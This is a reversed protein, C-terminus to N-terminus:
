DDEGRVGPAGRAMMPHLVQGPPLHLRQTWRCCLDEIRKVPIGSSIVKRLQKYCGQILPARPCLWTKESMSSKDKEIRLVSNNTASNVSAMEGKHEEQHIPLQSLIPNM